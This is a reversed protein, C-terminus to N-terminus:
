QSVSKAELLPEYFATFNLRETCDKKTSDYGAARLLYSKTSDSLNKDKAMLDFGTLAM